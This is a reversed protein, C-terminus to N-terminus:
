LVIIVIEISTFDKWIFLREQKSCEWHCCMMRTGRIPTLRRCCYRWNSLPSSPASRAFPTLHPNNVTMICTIPLYNQSSTVIRSKYLEFLQKQEKIWEFVCHYKTCSLASNDFFFVGQNVISSLVTFMLNSSAFFNNRRLRRFIAFGLWMSVDNYFQYLFRYPKWTTGNRCFFIPWRSFAGLHAGLQGGLLLNWSNCELNWPSSSVSHEM